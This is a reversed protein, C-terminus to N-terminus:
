QLRFWFWYSGVVVVAAFVKAVWRGFTVFGELVGEAFLQLLFYAPVVAVYVAWPQNKVWTDLLVISAFLGIALVGAVLALWLPIQRRSAHVASDVCDLSGTSFSSLMIEISFLETNERV